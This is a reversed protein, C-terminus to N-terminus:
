HAVVVTVGLMRKFHDDELVMVSVVTASRNATSSDSGVKVVQTQQPQSEFVWGEFCDFCVSKGVAGRRSDNQSLHNIPYLKLGYRCYEAM